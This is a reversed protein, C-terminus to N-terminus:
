YPAAGAWPLTPDTTAPAPRLSPNLNTGKSIFQYFRTGAAGANYLVVVDVRGDGNVDSAVLRSASWRFSTANSWLSRPVFSVGTSLLGLMQSGITGNVRDIIVDARGDRNVDAVVIRARAASTDPLDLWPELPGGATGNSRIVFYRLGTSAIPQQRSLDVQLILDARSDADVDGAFALLTSVDVPGTWWPQAQEFGAGASRLLWLTGQATPVPQPDTPSPAASPDASATPIPLPQASLGPEGVLIAADARGDGDFDGVVFRIASNPTIGLAAPPGSWWPQALQLGSGTGLAVSITLGGDPARSLVLLDILHDGNVDGTQRFLTGAPPLALNTLLLPAAAPDPVRGSPYIRTDITAPDAGPTVVIVDGLGDGTSDGRGPQVIALGPDYYRHLIADATLGQRACRSASIQYLRHGDANVGCDVAAGDQYGTAFLQGGKRLSTTWTSDVADIESQAPTRTEPSYVQDNTSDVVDDCAGDAASGGRWNITYYWAYQKVAVAGARLAEAPNSPRWEAAMVVNVYDRFAVLQVSGAAPGATRLVRITTPPVTDNTWGSCVAAARVDGARWSVVSGAVLLCATVAMLALPSRAQRSPRPFSRRWLQANM